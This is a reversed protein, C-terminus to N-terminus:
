PSVTVKSGNSWSESSAISSPSVTITLFGKYRTYLTGHAGDGARRPPSRTASSSTSGRSRGGPGQRRLNNWILKLLEGLAAGDAGRNKSTRAFSPPIYRRPRPRMAALPEQNGSNLTEFIAATDDEAGLTIVIVRFDELLTASVVSDLRNSRNGAEDWDVFDLGQARM